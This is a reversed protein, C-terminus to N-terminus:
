NYKCNDAIYHKFCLIHDCDPCYYFNDNRIPGCIDCLVFVKKGRKRTRRGHRRQSKTLGTLVGEPVVKRVQAPEVFFSSVM